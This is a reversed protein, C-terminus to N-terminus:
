DMVKVPGDNATARRWATELPNEGDRPTGVFVVGALGLPPFELGHYIEEIKDLTMDAYEDVVAFPDPRDNTIVGRIMQRVAEPDLRWFRVWSDLTDPLGRVRRFAQYPNDHQPNLPLNTPVSRDLDDDGIQIPPMIRRYFGDERMKTRIFSNVAEAALKSKGAMFAPFLELMQRECMRRAADLRSHLGIERGQALWYPDVMEAKMILGFHERVKEKSLALRVKGAADAHGNDDLWDPLVNATAWDPKAWVPELFTQEVFAGGPTPTADAGSLKDFLTRNLLEASM